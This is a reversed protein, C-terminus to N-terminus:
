EKEMGLENWDSWGSFKLPEEKDLNKLHEEWRKISTKLHLDFKDESMYTFGKNQIETSLFPPFVTFGM